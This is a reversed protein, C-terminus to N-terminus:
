NAAAFRAARQSLFQRSESDLDLGGLLEDINAYATQNGAIGAEVIALVFCIWQVAKKGNLTGQHQRFEITGYRAYANLNITRYKERHETARRIAQRTVAQRIEEFAGGAIRQNTTPAIERAYFANRRSPPVLGNIIAQNMAYLDFISMIQAGTLGDMGVHLHFGCQMDVHGGAGMIATLATMVAQLGDQGRLIPSVLECGSAVSADPVIKWMTSVDHRYHTASEVDVGADRLTRIASQMSLGKFEFECGFTRNSPISPVGSVTAVPAVPAVSAVAQTVQGQRSRAARCAESAGQAARYGLRQAITAYALGQQRLRLAEDQRAHTASTNRASIRSPRYQAPRNTAPMKNERDTDAKNGVFL